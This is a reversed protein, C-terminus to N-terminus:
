KIFNILINNSVYLYKASIFINNGDDILEGKKILDKINFIDILNVDYKRYFDKKNVGITKRFGLMLENEIKTEKTLALENLKYIGNIYKNISKTNDYRKNGIYGSAGTGFGYYHENNWYVLNHKSEYGIKSYNSIEYHNFHNSKLTSTICEYMKYDLDEDINKINEVYLKTHEEIILSYCSIHNIDLKFFQKIDNKLNNLTQNPLAYILDVSINKFGMDKVLKILAISEEKNHKRNLFKLNAEDFSQIGISLRNIGKEKFM